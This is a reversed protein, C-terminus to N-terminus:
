RLYVELRANRLKMKGLLCILDLEMPRDNHMPSGLTTTEGARERRRSM